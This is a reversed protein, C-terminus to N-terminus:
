KLDYIGDELCVVQSEFFTKMAQIMYMTDRVGATEYASHMALQALGIDVTNMSLQTNSINGLTSGGAIDSRNAYVQYPVNARECIMKFLASSVGDSTYKQNGNFKIVIGENMFPRNVADAKEMHNPHAAHANDASIMFSSAFIRRREESEIGCAKCIHHVTEKLFDSDAGQKTSSGVEENDLVAIMSVQPSKESALLGKVSSFVSQLDDLRPSSIFSENKGWICGRVRPYLFLDHGLIEDKKVHASEAVVDMFTGKADADGYLPLLDKQVNWKYGENAGRNMHIALNPIVLLDKEVNVLRTAIGFETRVLIRGAVSLPRDFWTSMLMGGYGEVNLKTYKDAVGLEPIEKIKFTPSDSHSAVIHFGEVFEPIIFGIISSGNRSVYYRGGPKIDWFASENLRIFGQEDLMKKITDVAHYCTPSKKIFELLEESFNNKM